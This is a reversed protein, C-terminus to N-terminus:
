VDVNDPLTIGRERLEREWAARGQGPGPFFITPTHAQAFIERTRRVVQPEDRALDRTQGPDELAHYVEIPHEPHARYVWWDELRIAQEDKFEWYLYERKEQREPQGLLTPLISVGDINRPCYAGAAEAATPLFDWFAWPLDCTTGPAIRGAWHAITPVALGGQGLNGKEGKWPGRHHFWDDLSPDRAYGRASYGNDSTFFILSREYIGLEHLLAILEGIAADMRTIMAAWIKHTVSPWDLHAYPGLDPVELAGHPPTYPLYLFFPRDANARVFDLSRAAYEDFAYRAADPDRVGNIRVRGEADYENSQRHDHGRHQPYFVQQANHWLYEPYHNHAKRQNLYGYFEDFGVLNPLGPQNRLSLGWKGYMGTAYGVSKLVQAVTFQGPQLSHRYTGVMNDRVATHGTHLGQMLASRSPACVTSGSYCHTFRMGGAALRDIHPTQILEQGYCGLDGWSLDDAMIWIINPRDLDGEAM